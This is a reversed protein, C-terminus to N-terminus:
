EVMGWAHLSAGHRSLWETEAKLSGGFLAEATARFAPSHDFHRLHAVEHAVVARRVSDPALLLRWSFSLKGGSSCSGWRRMPDGVRVSAIAVGAREALARAEAELRERAAARLWAEVRAAFRGGSDGVLLRDGVRSVTTGPVRTLLLEEGALPIVLGAVFPRPAVFQRVQGELWARNAEILLLGARLPTRAPLTLRM